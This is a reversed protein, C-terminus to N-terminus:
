KTKKRTVATSKSSPVTTRPTKPIVLPAIITADRRGLEQMLHIERGQLRSIEKTQTAITANAVVLATKADDLEHTLRAVDAKNKEVEAQAEQLKEVTSEISIRLENLTTKQHEVISRALSLDTKDEKYKAHLEKYKVVQADLEKRQQEYSRKTGILQENSRLLSAKLDIIERKAGTLESNLRAVEKESRRLEQEAVTLSSYLSFNETRLRAAESKSATLRNTLSEVAATKEALATDLEARIRSFDASALSHTRELASLENRTSELEDSLTANEKKLAINIQLLLAMNELQGELETNARVLTENREILFQGLEKAQSLEAKQGELQANLDKIEKDCREITLRQTENDQNLARIKGKLQGILPLGDSTDFGLSHAIETLISTDRQAGSEIIRGSKALEARLRKIAEDREELTGELTTVCLRAHELKSATDMTRAEAEAHRRELISMDNEFRSQARKLEEGLDFAERQYVTAAEKLKDIVEPLTGAFGKEGTLETHATRAQDHSIGQASELVKNIDSLVKNQEQLGVVRNTLDVVQGELDFIRTYIQRISAALETSSSDRHQALTEILSTVEEQTPPSEFPLKLTRAALRILEQLELNEASLRAHTSKLAAEASTIRGGISRLMNDVALEQAEPTGTLGISLKELIRTVRAEAAATKEKQEDLAESLQTALSQRWALEAALEERGKGSLALNAQLEAVTKTSEQLELNIREFEGLLAIRDQLQAELTHIRRYFVTEADQRATSSDSLKQNALHLENQIERQSDQLAIIQQRGADIAGLAADRATIAENRQTQLAGNEDGTITIEAQLRGIEEDRKRLQGELEDRVESLNFDSLKVQSELIAIQAAQDSNLDELEAVRDTKVGLDFQAQLLTSQIDTEILNQAALQIELAITEQLLAENETRRESAERKSEDLAAQAENLQQTLGPIDRETATSLLGNLRAIEGERGAIVGNLHATEEEGAEFHEGLDVLDQALKDKEAQAGDLEYRLRQVETSLSRVLGTAERLENLTAAHETTLEKLGHALDTVRATQTALQNTTRELESELGAITTTSEAIQRTLANVQEGGVRSIETVRARLSALQNRVLGTPANGETIGLEREIASIETHFQALQTKNADSEDANDVELSGVRGLAQELGGNLHTIQQEFGARRLEEADLARRLDAVTGKLDGIQQQAVGLEVTKLSLQNTVNVINANATALENTLDQLVLADFRNNKELDIVQGTLREIEANAERNAIALADNNETLRAVNQNLRAIEDQQDSNTQELAAVHENAANLENQSDELADTLRTIETQLTDGAAGKEELAQKLGEVKAKLTIADSHAIELAHLTTRNESKLADLQTQCQNLATDSNTLADRLEQIDAECNNLETRFGVNADRLELFETKANELDRELSEIIENAEELDTVTEQLTKKLYAIETADEEANARAHALQKTLEDLENEAADREHETKQLKQMLYNITRANRRLEDERSTLTPTAGTDSRVPMPTQPVRSGQVPTPAPTAELAFLEKAIKVIKQSHRTITAQDGYCKYEQAKSALSFSSADPGGAKESFTVDNNSFAFDLKSIDIGTTTSFKKFTFTNTIGALEKQAKELKKSYKPNDIPLPKGKYRINALNFRSPPVPPLSM